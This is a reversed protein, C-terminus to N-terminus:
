NRGDRLPCDSRAVPANPTPWPLDKWIRPSILNFQPPQLAHLYRLVQAPSVLPRLGYEIDVMVLLLLIGHIHWLRPLSRKPGFRAATKASKAFTVLNHHVFEGLMNKDCGGIVLVGDM